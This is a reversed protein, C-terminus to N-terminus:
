RDPAKIPSHRPTHQMQTSPTNRKGGGREDSVASDYSFSLALATATPSHDPATIPSHRNLRPTQPKQTSSDNNQASDYSSSLAPAASAPSRDPATIPSHHPTQQKQASSTDRKDRGDEDYAASDHSSSLAHAAATPSHDPTTIPSLHPTQQKERKDGGDEDYAAYDHSSSLAPAAATPSRDPTTISSHHLTQQKQTSSTDMKDGADENDLASVHSSSLAPAASTPSHDPATIPSHHPAQQKQTSSNGSKDGRDEDGTVSDDLSSSSSSGSEKPPMSPSSSNSDSNSSSSRSSSLFGPSSLSCKASTQPRSASKKPRKKLRDKQEVDSDTDSERHKHKRGRKKHKRTGQNGSEEEEEDQIENLPTASPAGDVGSCSPLRVQEDEMDDDSDSITYYEFEEESATHVKGSFEVKVMGIVKTGDYCCLSPYEVGSDNRTESLIIYPYVKQGPKLKGWAQLGLMALHQGYKKGLGKLDEMGGFEAYRCSPMKWEHFLMGHECAAALKMYIDLPMRCNNDAMVQGNFVHKICGRAMATVVDAGLFVIENMCARVKSGKDNAAANFIQELRECKHKEEVTHAYAAKLFEPIFMNKIFYTRSRKATTENRSNVAWQFGSCLNHPHRKVLVNLILDTAYKEFPTPCNKKGYKRTNLSIGDAEFPVGNKDLPPSVLEYVKSVDVSKWPIDDVEQCKQWSHITDNHDFVETVHALITMMVKQNAECASPDTSVSAATTVLCSRQRTSSSPTTNTAAAVVTSSVLGASSSATDTVGCAVVRIISAAAEKSKITIAHMDNTSLTTKKTMTHDFYFNRLTNQMKQFVVNVHESARKQLAAIVQTELDGDSSTSADSVVNRVCTDFDVPDSNSKVVQQSIKDDVFKSLLVELIETSFSAYKQQSPLPVPTYSVSAVEKNKVAM